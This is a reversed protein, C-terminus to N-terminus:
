QDAVFASGDFRYRRSTTEGWPVLLPELGGYPLKDVPFPYTKDTWGVARGATLELSVGRGKPIFRVGGVIADDGLARGTEAAFIRKIGGETAQYVYLAHRDVVKGGMEKSAKAHLVGRVIIEAKGDGTLDRATADLVDKPSEVGITIFVYSTGEKFAKGFVVIDKGHVLVREPTKDAAVDTVFDFRPKEIGVRRDQRFLAYVRDLLEDPSPPRPPPPAPPGEAEVPAAGRAPAKVTPQWTESGAAAFQKGDWEYAVSKQTQWPLLASDMDGPMPEAYTAPDFGEAKGQSIVIDTKAGQKKLAVENRIEGAKTVIATEHQFAVYPNDGSSVRLVQIVERYEDKTGIRKGIVIEDKGDGTLDTVEFRTVAQPGEVALDQFFFEKGGRYASGTVTLSSGYIAVAELTSDGAIDGVAFRAPTEPLGKARVVSRYLGQEAELLLPPLSAGSGGSTGIVARTAGPSDSDSYRLAARLGVRVTSAEAFSTWPLSAEILYGGDSPAEVLRAGKVSGGGALKVAGASKGIEGAYLRVSYSKFGRPTPFALELVGYDEGDGFSATRVLKSDHVKMAVYLNKDDYGIAGTANPDSGAQSGQLVEGLVDLKAPWERLLGDIRVKESGTGILVAELARGRAAAAGPALSLAVFAVVGCLGARAGAPNQRESLRAM